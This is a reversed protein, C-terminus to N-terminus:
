GKGRLPKKGRAAHATEMQSFPAPSHRSGASSQKRPEELAFAVAIVSASMDDIELILTTYREVYDTVSGTKKLRLLAYKYRYQSELFSTPKSRQKRSKGCSCIPQIEGFLNPADQM